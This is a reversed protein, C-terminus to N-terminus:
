LRTLEPSFYKRDAQKSLDTLDERLQQTMVFELVNNFRTQDTGLPSIQTQTKEALINMSGSGIVVITEIKVGAKVMSEVAKRLNKSAATQGWHHKHRKINTQIQEPPIKEWAYRSM